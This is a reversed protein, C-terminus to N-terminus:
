FKLFGRLALIFESKDLALVNSFWDGARKRVKKLAEEETYGTHYPGNVVLASKDLDDVFVCTKDTFQFLNFVNIEFTFYNPLWDDKGEVRGIRETDGFIRKEKIGYTFLDATKKNVYTALFEVSTFINLHPSRIKFQDITAKGEALCNEIQYPYLFIINNKEDEMLSPLESDPSEDETAHTLCDYGRQVMMGISFPDSIQAELNSIDIINLYEVGASKWSQFIQTKKLNAM